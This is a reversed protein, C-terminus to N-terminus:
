QVARDTLGKLFAKLWLGNGGAAQTLMVASAGAPGSGSPFFINLSWPM